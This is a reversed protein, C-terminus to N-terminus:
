HRMEVARSWFRWGYKMWYDIMWIIAHWGDCAIRELYHAHRGRAVDKRATQAIKVNVYLSRYTGQQNLYDMLALLYSTKGVQRPAHLVFYKQQAILMMVEDLDFRTLPTVHYHLNAQIPGATNFFRMTHTYYIHLRYFGCVM